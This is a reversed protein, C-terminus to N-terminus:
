FTEDNRRHKNWAVWGFPRLAGYAIWNIYKFGNIEIAVDRFIEDCEKRTMKESKEGHPKMFQEKAYLWDHILGPILLVGVPSLWNWFYKPISAGDFVFGRPIVYVEDNLVFTWDTALEWTRSTWLWLWIAGFTGKDKTPITIPKLTPFTHYEIKM